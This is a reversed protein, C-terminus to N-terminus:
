AKTIPQEQEQEQEDKQQEQQEQQRSVIYNNGGTHTINQIIRHMRYEYNTSGSAIRLANRRYSSM